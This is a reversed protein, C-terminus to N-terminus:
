DELLGQSLKAEMNRSVLISKLTDVVRHIEDSKTKFLSAVLGYIAEALIEDTSDILAQNDKFAVTGDTENFKRAYKEKRLAEACESKLVSKEKVESFSYSKLSLKLMLNRIDDNSLNDQNTAVGILGDIEWLYQKIIDDAISVLDAYVLDANDLAKTLQGRIM